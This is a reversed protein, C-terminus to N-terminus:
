ARVRPEVIAPTARANLCVSFRTVCLRLPRLFASPSSLHAHGKSEATLTADPEARRGDGHESGRLAGIPLMGWSIFRYSAILRGRLHEPMLVQRMSFVHVNTLTVGFGVLFYAAMLIPVVLPGSALPILLPSVCSITAGVTVTRGLGM